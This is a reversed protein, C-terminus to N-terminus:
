TRPLFKFTFEPHRTVECTIEEVQPVNPGSIRLVLQEADFDFSAGDIQIAEGPFLKEAILGLDVRLKAM